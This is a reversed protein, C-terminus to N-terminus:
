LIELIEDLESVKQWCVDHLMSCRADSFTIGNGTAEFLARDTHSDGVFACETPQVRWIKCLCYLDHLKIDFDRGRSVIRDLHGSPLYEITSNSSVYLPDVGIERAVRDVVVDLGGSVIGVRYGRAQLEHVTDRAASNLPCQSLTDDIMKRTVQGNAKYLAVIQDIWKQYSFAGAHYQDFLQQDLERPVGLAANLHEWSNGLVLVGDVDFAVTKIIRDM